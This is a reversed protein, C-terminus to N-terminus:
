WGEEGGVEGAEPNEMEEILKELQRLTVGKRELEKLLPLAQSVLKATEPDKPLEPHEEAYLETLSPSDVVKVRKGLLQQLRNVTAGQRGIVLGKLQRPVYVHVEEDSWPVVDIYKAPIRNYFEFVKKRLQEVEFEQVAYEIYKITEWCMHNISEVLKSYREKLQEFANFENFSTAFALRLRNDYPVVLTMYAYRPAVRRVELLRSLEEFFSRCEPLQSGVRVVDDPLDLLVFEVHKDAEGHALREWAKWDYLRQKVPDNKVAPDLPDVEGEVAISSILSAIRASVV